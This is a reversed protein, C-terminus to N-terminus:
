SKTENENEKYYDFINDQPQVKLKEIAAMEAKKFNEDPYIFYGDYFMMDKLNASKYESMVQKTIKFKLIKAKLEDLFIWVRYDTVLDREDLFDDKVQKIEEVYEKSRNCAEEVSMEAGNEDLQKKYNMLTEKYATAPKYCEAVPRGAAFDTIFILLRACHSLQKGDYGYKEIKDIIGPYPHCLAKDKEYAMGAICRLFQATDAAVIEERKEFLPKIMEKYKPNFVIYDSYLLEIYSINEKKFMEFMVRIDKVEAHEDNELVEVASIPQKARIFDDLSPLVISKTDVDSCYDNSYEDLGYNQSGQLATFVVDYGAAVLYDYHEKVRASITARRDEVQNM